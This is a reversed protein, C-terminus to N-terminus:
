YEFEAPDSKDLKSLIKKQKLFITLSKDIDTLKCDYLDKYIKIRSPKKM